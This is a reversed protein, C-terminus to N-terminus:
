EYTFDDPDFKYDEPDHEYQKPDDYFEYQHYDIPKKVVVIDNDHHRNNVIKQYISGLFVVIGTVGFIVLVVDIGIDYMEALIEAGFFLVSVMILGYKKM